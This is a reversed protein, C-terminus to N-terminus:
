GRGRKHVAELESAELIEMAKLEIQRVREKTICLLDGIAELTRPQDGDLGYRWRIIRCQREDLNKSLVRDVDRKRREDESRDEVERTTSERTDMISERMNMGTVNDGDRSELSMIPQSVVQTKWVFAATVPVHPSKGKLGEAIEDPSPNRGHRGRFDQRFDEIKRIAGLVPGPMRVTRATHDISRLMAQRIWPTAYTSFRCGRGPDFKDVATILGSIAEQILDELAIGRNAFRKAESIALRVNRTTLIEKAVQFDSHARSARDWRELLTEYSEQSAELHEKLAAASESRKKPDPGEDASEYLVRATAVHGGFQSLFDALFAPRIAIESLLTAIKQRDSMLSAVIETRRAESARMGDNTLWREDCRGMLVDITKLNRKAIAVIAHKEAASDITSVHLIRSHHFSVGKSTAERLRAIAERAVPLFSFLAELLEQRSSQIARTVEREEAPTLIRYPSVQRFLTTLTSAVGKSPNLASAEFAGGNKEPAILHEINRFAAGPSPISLAAEWRSTERAGQSREGDSNMVRKEVVEDGGNGFLADFM